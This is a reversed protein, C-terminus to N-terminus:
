GILITGVCVFALDGYPTSRYSLGVSGVQPSSPESAHRRVWNRQYIVVVWCGM